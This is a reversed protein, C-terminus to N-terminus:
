REHLVSNAQRSSRISPVGASGRKLVFAVAFVNWNVHVCARARASARRISQMGTLFHLLQLSLLDGETDDYNTNNM